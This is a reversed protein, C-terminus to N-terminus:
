SRVSARGPTQATSRRPGRSPQNPALRLQLRRKAPWADAGYFPPSGQLTTPRCGSAAGRGQPRTPLKAPALSRRRRKAPPRGARHLGRWRRVASGRCPVRVGTRPPPAANQRVRPDTPRGPANTGFWCGRRIRAIRANSALFPPPRFAPALPERAPTRM